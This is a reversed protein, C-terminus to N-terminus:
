LFVIVSVGNNILCHFYYSQYFYCYGTLAIIEVDRSISLCTLLKSFIFLKFILKKNQKTKESNNKHTCVGLGEVFYVIHGYLLHTTM